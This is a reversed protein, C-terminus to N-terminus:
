SCSSKVHVKLLFLLWLHTSEQLNEEPSQRGGGRYISETKRWRQLYVRDEEVEIYLSDEEVEISLSDEEVEISLSDEEM